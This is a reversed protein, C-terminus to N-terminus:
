SYEPPIALPPSEEQVDLGNVRSPLRVPEAQGEHPEKTNM